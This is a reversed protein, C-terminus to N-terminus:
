NDSETLGEECRFCQYDGDQYPPHDCGDNGRLAEIAQDLKEEPIHKLKDVGAKRLDETDAKRCCPLCFDFHINEGEKEDWVAIRPM